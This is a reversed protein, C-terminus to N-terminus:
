IYEFSGFGFIRGRLAHGYIPYTGSTTYGGLYINTSSDLVIGRAEDTGSGGIFTSFILETMSPNLRTVFIDENANQTTDFTGSTTPFLPSLTFGTVYINGASDTAIDDGQENNIGGLLTSAALNSLTVSPDIILPKSRDYNETEFGIRNNELKVYRSEVTERM